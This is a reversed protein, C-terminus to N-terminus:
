GFFPGNPKPRDPDFVNRFAEPIRALHKRLKAITQNLEDVTRKLYTVRGSMANYCVTCVWSMEDSPTDVFYNKFKKKCKVCIIKVANRRCV